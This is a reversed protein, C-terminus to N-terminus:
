RNENEGGKKNVELPTAASRRAYALAQERGFVTRELRQIAPAFRRVSLPHNMRLGSPAASSKGKRCLIHCAHRDAKTIQEM